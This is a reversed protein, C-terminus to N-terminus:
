STSIPLAVLSGASRLATSSRTESSLMSKTRSQNVSMTPWSFLKATVTSSSSPASSSPIPKSPEDIVPKLEISSDSMTAMGSGPVKWTMGQRVPSNLTARM